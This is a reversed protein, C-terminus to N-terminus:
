RLEFFPGSGLGKSSPTSRIPAERNALGRTDGDNVASDTADPARRRIIVQASSFAIACLHGDEIM